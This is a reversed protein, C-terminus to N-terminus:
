AVGQYLKILTKIFSDKSYTQQVHENFDKALTSRKGQDQILTMLGQCLADPNKPPVLIGFRGKELVSTCEGVATVVVPLGAWGYELLSVPLGESESALVGIDVQSLIHAMDTQVGYQFVSHELQNETIFDEIEQHYVDGYGKGILHLSWDPEQLIVKQFAKLLNLHDKQPRYGAVCVMRKGHIGQLFTIPPQQDLVAFNPMYTVKSCHLHSEAWDKLLRNVSIIGTFFRSFLKLFPVKRSETQESKGYHDHWFIKVGPLSLKVWGAYFFSSSHAHIIQIRHKLIYTRLRLFARIDVTGKKGLFVYFVERHIKSKLDGEKRTVCLYSQVGKEALANAINVAMM